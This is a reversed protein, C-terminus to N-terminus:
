IRIHAYSQWSKIPSSSSFNKGSSATSATGRMQIRDELADYTYGLHVHL